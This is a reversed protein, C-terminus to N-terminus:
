ICHSTINVYCFYIVLSSYISSSPFGRWVFISLQLFFLTMLFILSTQLSALSYPWYQSPYTKLRPSLKCKWNVNETDWNVSIVHTCYTNCSHDIANTFLKKCFYFHISKWKTLINLVDQDFLKRCTKGGKYQFKLIM